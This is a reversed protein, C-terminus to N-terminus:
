IRIRATNVVTYRVKYCMTLPQAEVQCLGLCVKLLGDLPSSVSSGDSQGVPMDTPM